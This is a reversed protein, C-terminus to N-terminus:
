LNSRFKGRLTSGFTFIALTAIFTNIVNPIKAFLKEMPESYKEIWKVGEILPDWYKPKHEKPDKSPNGDKTEKVNEGKLRQKVDATMRFRIWKYMTIIKRNCIDYTDM